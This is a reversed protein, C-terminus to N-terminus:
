KQTTPWDVESCETQPVQYEVTYTMTWGTSGQVGAFGYIADDKWYPNRTVEGKNLAYEKSGAEQAAINQSPVNLDLWHIDAGVFQGHTVLSIRGPAITRATAINSLFGGSGITADTAVFTTAPLTTTQRPSHDYSSTCKQKKPLSPVAFSTSQPSNSLNLTITVPENPNDRIVTFENRSDLNPCTPSIADILCDGYLSDVQKGKVESHGGEIESSKVYPGLHFSETSAYKLELRFRNPSDNVVFYTLGKQGNKLTDEICSQIVDHWEIPVYSVNSSMSNYYNISQQNLEFYQERKVVFDNYTGSFLNGFLGANASQQASYYNNVDIISLYYWQWSTISSKIEKRVLTDSFCKSVDLQNTQGYCKGSLGLLTLLVWLLSAPRM